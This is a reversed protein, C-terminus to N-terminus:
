VGVREHQREQWECARQMARANDREIKRNVRRREWLVFILLFLFLGAGCLLTQYATM